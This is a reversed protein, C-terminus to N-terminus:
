EFVFHQGTLKESLEWLRDADVADRTWCYVEKIDVVASDALYAGNRDKLDPSFAGVVYTSAGQSPTKFKPWIWYKSHGQQHDLQDLERIDGDAMYRALHTDMIVGPHLSVATLNRHGLKDALAKTYLMLASKSQGYSLWRDYKKGEQLTNFYADQKEYHNLQDDSVGFDLDGFRVPSFRCGESSINVVRIPESRALMDPLLLNTLVFHGLYNIAFTSEIGDVTKSYPAAMVAASNVIIDIKENLSRIKEAAERVQGLSELDLYVNHTRISPDNAKIAQATEECKALDRGALIFCAPNYQAIGIAFVAGLSKPSAGTLFITKGTIQAKFDAAVEETTTEDNYSRM